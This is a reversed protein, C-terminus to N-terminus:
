CCSVSTVAQVKANEFFKEVPITLKKRVTLFFTLFFSAVIFGSNKSATKFINLRSM